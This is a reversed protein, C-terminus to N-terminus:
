AAPEDFCVIESDFDADEMSWQPCDCKRGRLVSCSSLVFFLLFLVPVLRVKWKSHM